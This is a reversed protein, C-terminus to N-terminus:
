SNWSNKMKYLGYCYNSCVGSNWMFCIAGPAKPCHLEQAKDPFFFFFFIGENDRSTTIPQLIKPQGVPHM